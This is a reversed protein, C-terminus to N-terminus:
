RAPSKGIRNAPGPPRWEGVSGALRKAVEDGIVFELRRRCLVSDGDVAGPVAHQLRGAKKLAFAFQLADGTMIRMSRERLRGVECRDAPGTVSLRVFGGSAVARAAM